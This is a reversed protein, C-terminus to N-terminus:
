ALAFGALAFLGTYLAMVLATQRIIKGEQGLLGTVGAVAVVNAVCVMNGANAGGIQQALVIEPALGTSTAV